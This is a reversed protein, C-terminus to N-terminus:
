EDNKKVFVGVYPEGLKVKKRLEEKLPEDKM